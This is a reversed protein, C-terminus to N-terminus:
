RKKAYASDYNGNGEDNIAQRDLENIINQVEAARNEQEVIEAWV